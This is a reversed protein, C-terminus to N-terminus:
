IEYAHGDGNDDAHGRFPGDDAFTRADLYDDARPIGGRQRRLNLGSDGSAGVAYEQGADRASEGRFQVDSFDDDAYRDAIAAIGDDM